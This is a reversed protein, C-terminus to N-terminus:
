HNDPDLRHAMWSMLCWDGMNTLWNEGHEVMDQLEEPDGNFHHYEVVLERAQKETFGVEKLDFDSCGHNGFKDAAMSLLHAALQRELDSLGRHPDQKVKGCNAFQTCM